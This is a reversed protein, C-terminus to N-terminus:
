DLAPVPPRLGWPLGRPRDTHFYRKYASIWNTAMDRQAQALSVSGDCVLRRLLDELEDKVLANWTPSAYSEPWLNQPDVAGGLQPTILYDLEYERGSADHVGYNRLVVDRVLAPVAVEDHPEPSACIDAATRPYVAGPTLHRVPLPARYIAEASVNTFMASGGSGLWVVCAVTAAVAVLTRISKRRLAQSGFTSELDASLRDFRRLREACAPCQALHAGARTLGDEELEGDAFALLDEDSLHTM